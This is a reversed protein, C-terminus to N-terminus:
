RNETLKIEETREYMRKAGATFDNITSIAEDSGNELDLFKCYDEAAEVIYEIKM